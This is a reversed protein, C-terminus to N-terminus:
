PENDVNYALHGLLNAARYFRSSAFKSENDKGQEFAKLHHVILNWLNQKDPKEDREEAQDLVEIAENLRQRRLFYRVRSLLPRKHDPESANAEESLVKQVVGWIQPPLVPKCLFDVVGLQVAEIATVSDMYASCLITPLYNGDARLKRLVQIGDLGPMRVDLLMVGYYNEGKKELIQLAEEGDEAYSTEYGESELAMRFGIRLSKEDDVILIKTPDNETSESAQGSATSTPSPNKM